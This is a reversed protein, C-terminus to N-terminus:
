SSGSGEKEEHARIRAKVAEIKELLELLTQRYFRAMLPDRVSLAKIQRDRAERGMEQLSRLQRYTEVRNIRGGQGPCVGILRTQTCFDSVRDHTFPTVRQVLAVHAPTQNRPSSLLTRPTWFTTGRAWM